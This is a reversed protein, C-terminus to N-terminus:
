LGCNCSRSEKDLGLADWIDPTEECLGVPCLPWFAKVAPGYLRLRVPKPYRAMGGRRSPNELEAFLRQGAYRPLNAEARLSGLTVREPALRKVQQIIWRHDFGRIMPDLRIRIRWGKRKLRRAAELRDAVPAAGREHRRAAEPSNVSFSIVVNRCPATKFLPRCEKLGGKTVLLLTHKRKKAEAEERFLNVLRGMLPRVDEFVLSDSLNGTNLVHSDLRDRRIWTRIEEIIRDTNTFVQHTPLFWFSSKLFCYSCQPSFACGNAHALVFFNPCVTEPPTTRFIQV